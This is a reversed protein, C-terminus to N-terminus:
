RIYIVVYYLIEAMILYFINMLGNKKLSDSMKDLLSSLRRRVTRESIGFHAAIHTPDMGQEKRMIFISRTVPDTEDLIEYIKKNLDDLELKETTRNGSSVASNEELEVKYYRKEKKIFNVTLNHATKYLFSRLNTDELDYKDSYSILSVFCDHLIDEASESSFTMKYIYHYIEKKYLGYIDLLRKESIM